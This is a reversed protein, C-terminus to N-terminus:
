GFFNARHQLQRILAIQHHGRRASEGLLLNAAHRLPNVNQQAGRAQILNFFVIRAIQRNRHLCAHRKGLHLALQAFM